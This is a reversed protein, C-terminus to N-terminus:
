FAFVERSLWDGIDVTRALAGTARDVVFLRGPQPGFTPGVPGTGSSVFLFRGDASVACRNLTPSLSGRSNLDILGIPELKRGYIAIRGAGSFDFGDGSDTHYIRQGDPSLCLRGYITPRPASDVLQRTALDFRYISQTSLLLLSGPSVDRAIGWMDVGPLLSDVVGLEPGGLVLILRSPWISGGPRTGLMLVRQSGSAGTGPLSVIGGGLIKFPAIVGVPTLTAVDVVVAAPASDSMWTSSDGRVGNVVLWKGDRSAAMAWTGLPRVLGAASRAGIVAMREQHVVRLSRTDVVSLTIGSSPDSSSIYLRSSDPSLAFSDKYRPIPGIRTVVRGRSVSVAAISNLEGGGVIVLDGRAVPGTPEVCSGSALSTMFVAIVAVM